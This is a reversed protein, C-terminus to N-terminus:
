ARASVPEARHNIAPRAPRASRARTAPQQVHQQVLPDISPTHPTLHRAWSMVYALLGIIALDLMVILAIALSQSM